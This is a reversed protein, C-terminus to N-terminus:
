LAFRARKLRGRAPPGPKPCAAWGEDPDLRLGQGVDWLTCVWAHTVESPMTPPIEPLPPPDEMLLASVEPPADDFGPLLVFMHREEAGSRLLKEPNSRQQDGSLFDTLWEAVANGVRPVFTTHGGVTFYVSGPFDTSSQAISEIGLAAVDAEDQTSPPTQPDVRRVGRRELERLLIPLRQLVDRARASRMLVALWGGQLDDYILREERGNIVNWLEILQADAAATVEVAAPPRGPYVIELDHM